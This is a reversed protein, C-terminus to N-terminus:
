GACTGVIGSVLPDLTSAIQGPGHRLLDRRTGFGSLVGFTQTGAANGAKIDVMTDGVMVAHPAPVGLTRLAGLLPEPHPKTRRYTQGTVVVDVLGRLEHQDLFREVQRQPGASVIGIGVRGHLASLAERVGPCTRTVGRPSLADILRNLPGDLDVYDAIRLLTQVPREVALVAPRGWRVARDPGTVRRLVGEAIHVLEDDTDRLTGDVDFLVAGIRSFDIAM